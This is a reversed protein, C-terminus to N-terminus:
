AKKPGGKGSALPDQHFARSLGQYLDPHKKQLLRPREFFYEGLVAFFEQRNTNAYPDIDTKERRSAKLNHEILQFWPLVYQKELLVQPIGDTDGDMKDILHVFEHIATNRKDQENAFGQHLAKKSLIMKRDMYGSGVMGLIGRHHGETRFDESFRNPYLLVEDLNKYTWEPFSFIPIVASAAILVRDSDTVTVRVGTIAVNLLFEQVKYEFLGKGDQDLARYFPIKQELIRRWNEPFRDRPKMWRHGSRYILYILLAAGLTIAAIKWIM